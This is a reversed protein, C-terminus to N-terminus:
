KAHEPQPSSREDAKRPFLENRVLEEYTRQQFQLEILLSPSQSTVTLKPSPLGGRELAVWIKAIVYEAEEETGTTIQM